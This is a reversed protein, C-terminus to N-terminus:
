KIFLYFIFIVSINKKFYNNENDGTDLKKPWHAVACTHSPLVAAPSLPFGMMTHYLLAKEHDLCAIYHTTENM